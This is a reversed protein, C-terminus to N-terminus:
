CIHTHHCFYVKILEKFLKQKSADCYSSTCMSFFSFLLTSTYVVFTVNLYATKTVFAFNRGSLFSFYLCSLVFVTLLESSLVLYSSVEPGVLSTASFGRLLPEDFSISPPFLSIQRKHM